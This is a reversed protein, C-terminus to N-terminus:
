QAMLKEIVEIAFAAVNDTMEQIDFHMDLKFKNFPESTYKMGRAQLYTNLDFGNKNKRTFVIFEWGDLRIRSDFAIIVDDLYIDTVATDYFDPLKRWTWTKVKDTQFKESIQANVKEVVERFDDHIKKLQRNVIEIENIHERVYSIFEYDMINGKKLNEINTIFDILLFLYRQNSRTIYEGLRSKVQDFLQEYEIYVYKQHKISIPKLSLVFAYVNNPKQNNQIPQAFHDYYDDLDNYVTAYIKNEILIVYSNSQIVLDIFNGKKTQVEKQVEYNLDLAEAEIKGLTLMSQIFLDGLGHERKNDLFFALVNSAVREYHPFGCISFIDAEMHEEPSLTQLDDFLKELVQVQLDSM